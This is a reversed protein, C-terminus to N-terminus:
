RIAWAAQDATQDHAKWFFFRTLSDSNEFSQITSSVSFRIIRASLQSSRGASELLNETVAVMGVILRSSDVQSWADSDPM